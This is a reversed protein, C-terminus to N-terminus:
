LLEEAMLQLAEPQSSGVQITDVWRNQGAQKWAALRDRIREKSGVQHVADVLLGPRQFPSPKTTAADGYRM